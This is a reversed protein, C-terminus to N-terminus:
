LPARNRSPGQPGPQDTVAGGEPMSSALMMCRARRSRTVILRDIPSDRTLNPSKPGPEAAPYGHCADGNNTISAPCKASCASRDSCPSHGAGPRAPRASRPPVARRPCPLAWPEVAGRCSQAVVRPGARGCAPYRPWSLPVAPWSPLEAARCSPLEVPKGPLPSTTPRDTCWPV